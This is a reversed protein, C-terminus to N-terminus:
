GVAFLKRRQVYNIRSDSPRNGKNRSAVRSGAGTEGGIRRGKSEGASVEGSGGKGERSVFPLSSSFCESPVGKGGEGKEGEKLSVLLALFSETREAPCPCCHRSYRHDPRHDIM